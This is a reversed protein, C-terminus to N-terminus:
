KKSKKKNNKSFFNKIKKGMIYMSQKELPIQKEFGGVNKNPFIKEIIVGILNICFALTWGGIAIIVLVLIIVFLSSGLDEIPTNGLYNFVQDLNKGIESFLENFTM